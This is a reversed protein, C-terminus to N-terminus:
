FKAIVKKHSKWWPHFGVFFYLMRNILLCKVGEALAM